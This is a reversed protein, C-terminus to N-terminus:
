YRRTGESVTRVFGLERESVRVRLIARVEIM